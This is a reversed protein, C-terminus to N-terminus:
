KNEKRRSGNLTRELRKLLKKMEKIDKRRSKYKLKRNFIINDTMNDYTEALEIFIQSVDDIRDDIVDRIYDEKDSLIFPVKKM